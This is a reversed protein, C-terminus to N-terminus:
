KVTQFMLYLKLSSKTVYDSIYAVVAKISTGSLLSTVDTNCRICYTVDPTVCNIRPELTKVHIS